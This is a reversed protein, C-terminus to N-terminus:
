ALLVDRDLARDPSLTAPDIATFRALAADLRTVEAGVAAPSRDAVRGDLDHRGLEIALQPRFALHAEFFTAAAAEFDRDAPTPGAAAPAAHEGRPGCAVVFGLSVLLWRRAM